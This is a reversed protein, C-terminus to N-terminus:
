YAYPSIWSIFTLVRRLASVFLYFCILLLRLLASDTYIDLRLYITSWGPELKNYEECRRTIIELSFPNLLLSFLSQKLDNSFQKEDL